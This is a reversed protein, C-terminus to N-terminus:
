KSLDQFLRELIRKTDKDFGSGTMRNFKGDRQKWYARWHEGPGIDLFLKRVSGIEPHWELAVSGDAGPSIEPLGFTKPMARLIKRAYDLTDKTIPEADYGDWNKEKLQQYEKLTTVISRDLPPDTELAVPIPDTTDHRALYRKLAPSASFILDIDFQGRYERGIGTVVCSSGSIPKLVVAMPLSGSTIFIDAHDCVPCTFTSFTVTATNKLKSHINEHVSLKDAACTTTTPLPFFGQEPLPLSRPPPWRMEEDKRFKTLASV